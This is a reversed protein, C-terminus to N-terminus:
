QFLRARGLRYNLQRIERDSLKVAPVGGVVTKEPVDKTVVAGAAVVSGNGITVGPLIIARPGIFVHSGIRVPRLTLDFNETHLDRSGNYIMVESTIETHDGIELRDRGDLTANYGIITGTGIRINKPEYVRCGSHLYSKKGVKVGAITLVAKRLTHSPVFSLWWLLATTFEIGYSKFRLVIKAWAQPWTLERGMRDRFPSPM